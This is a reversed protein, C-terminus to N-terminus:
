KEELLCDPIQWMVPSGDDNLERVMYLLRGQELMAEEWGDGFKDVYLGKVALYADEITKCDKLAEWAKAVGARPLGPINDVTDGTILQRCFFLTGTGKVDHLKPEGNAKEGRYIPTLEGLEDVYAPGFQEQKGCEWGYHNGPVIRLDKDRSCIITHEGKAIAERQTVSLMDDAELGECMVVDYKARMYDIISDYYIPREEHKRNGKYPKVTAVKFRFNPKFVCADRLKQLTREEKKTLKSKKELRKIKKEFRKVKRNHTQEGVTLFLTPPEDGWVVDVIEEIKEDIFESVSDFNKVVLEETEEDVYQGFVGAEYVLLDADILPKM